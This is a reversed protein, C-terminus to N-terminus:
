PETLLALGAGVVLLLVGVVAVKIHWHAFHKGARDVQEM